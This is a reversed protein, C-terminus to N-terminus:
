GSGLIRNPEPFSVEQVNKAENLHSGAIFVRM